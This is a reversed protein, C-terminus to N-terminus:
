SRERWNSAKGSTREARNTLLDTPNLEKLSPHTSAVLHLLADINKSRWETYHQDSACEQHRARLLAEQLVSAEDLNLNEIFRTRHADLKYIHCVKVM